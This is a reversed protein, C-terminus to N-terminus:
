GWGSNDRARRLVVEAIDATRRPQRRGRASYRPDLEIARRFLKVAGRRNGSWWHERGEDFAEDAARNTVPTTQITPNEKAPPEGGAGLKEARVEFDRGM